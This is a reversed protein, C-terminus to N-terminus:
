LCFFYLGLCEAEILGSCRRANQRYWDRVGGLMKALGFEFVSIFFTQNYWDQVDDLINVVNWLLEFVPM